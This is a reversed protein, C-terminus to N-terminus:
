NVGKYSWYLAVVEILWEAVALAPPSKRAGNTRIIGM